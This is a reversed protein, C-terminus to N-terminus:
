WINEKGSVMCYGIISFIVTLIAAIILFYMIVTGKHIPLNGVFKGTQGNMAFPYNKGKWSVNLMWVPYMAYMARANEFHIATHEAEVNEYNEVSHYFAQEVSKRIRENARAISDEETVDCRDALYGALYAAQFPVADKFDFPELSEMIKDDMKSSGDVPVHEFEMTGAREISFYDTKKYDFKKDRWEEVKEAKYHIVANVRVDFLRVPVYVGKIEDIHHQEKFARPLFKRGSFHKQFKEKADEKDLKFPIIYEPKLDDKLQGIMVIPSDCYPCKSASTTTDAVIQGGCSKCQYVNMGAAEADSWTAQPIEWQPNDEGAENIAADHEQMAKISFEADCYPCKMQQVSSNFELM